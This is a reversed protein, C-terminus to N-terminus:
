MYFFRLLTLPSLIFLQTWRRLRRLNSVANVIKNIVIRGILLVLLALIIKGGAKTCIDVATKMFETM